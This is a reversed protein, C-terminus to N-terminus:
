KTQALELQARRLRERDMERATERNGAPRTVLGASLLATRAGRRGRAATEQILPKEGRATPFGIHSLGATKSLVADAMAVDISGYGPGSLGQAFHRSRQITYHWIDGAPYSLVQSKVTRLIVSRDDFPLATVNGRFSPMYRFWSEANSLYIAHVPVGARRAAAAIQQVTTPGTLDGLRAILRGTRALKQMHAYKVPDSLWTGKPGRRRSLENRLHSSLLDRYAHYIQLVARSEAGDPYRAEVAARVRSAARRDFLAVLDKATVAEPLLAAYLRHMHVVASDLDILWVVDAAAAAAMTYNQDGGVGIYGGGLGSLDAFFLDHRRENSWLYHRRVTHAAEDSPSQLVQTEGEATPASGSAPAPSAPTPPETAPAPTETAGAATEARLACPWAAVLSCLAVCRVAAALGQAYSM